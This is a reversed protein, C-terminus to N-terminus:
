MQMIASSAPDIVPSPTHHMPMADMTDDKKSLMYKAIIADYLGLAVSGYTRESENKSPKALTEYADRSLNIPLTRANYIWGDYEERSVAKATFKMGSFGEGSFNSSLGRYSGPEDVIVADESIREFLETVKDAWEISFVNGKSVQDFFGLQKLEAGDFLRWTDIHYLMPKKESLYSDPVTEINYEKEIIFTPSNITDKIGLVKAIGKTMETKGAGLEGQLAFIVSKYGFYHKYKNLLEIGLAQTEEPSHTTRELVPTLKINGQRLVVEQNLTTDVVTSPERKPLQGADLILSILNQQKTSINNLIDEVAYPRKKYSANASTATIPKGLATVIDLVLQYDPIRVGLTGTESEVGKAVTGLSKSVVTLPGPLFNEYLNKAVANVEVYQEAM